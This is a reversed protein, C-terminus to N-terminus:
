KKKPGSEVSTRFQSFLAPPDGSLGGKGMARWLLRGGHADFIELMDDPSSVEVGGGTTPAAAGPQGPRGGIPTRGGVSVLRGARVAILLQADQPRLTIVYKGWEEIQQRIADLAEREQPLADEASRAVETESLFGSGRDYGLAVYRAQLVEAPVPPGAVAVGAPLVLLFLLLALMATRKPM